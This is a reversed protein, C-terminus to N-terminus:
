YIHANVLRKGPVKRPRRLCWASPLHHNHLDELPSESPSNLTVKLDLSYVPSAMITVQSTCLVSIWWVFYAYNNCPEWMVPFCPFDPIKKLNWAPYFWLILFIHVCWPMSSLYIIFVKHIASYSVILVLVLTSNKRCSYSISRYLSMTLHYYLWSSSSLM